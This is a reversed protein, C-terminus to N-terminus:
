KVNKETKKIITLIKILYLDGGYSSFFDDEVGKAARKYEKEEQINWDAILNKDGKSIDFVSNELNTANYFNVRFYYQPEREWSEEVNFNIHCNDLFNNKYSESFGEENFLESNLEGKSSLCDAIKNIMVAGELERVDYPYHYFSYVMAFLGGAIIILIVFWYLTIIKSGAKKNFKIM